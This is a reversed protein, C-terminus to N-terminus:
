LIWRHVTVALSGSLSVLEEIRVMTWVPVTFDMTKGVSTHHHAESETGEDETIQSKPGLSLLEKLPGSIGGQLCGTRKNSLKSRARVHFGTGQLSNMSVHHM